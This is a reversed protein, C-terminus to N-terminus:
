EACARSWSMKADSGSIAARAPSAGGLRAGLQRAAGAGRAVADLPDKADVARAYAENVWTSSRTPDARGSRIPILSRAPWSANRAAGDARGPGRAAAGAGAPRRVRRPRAARRPQRHRPGRGRPPPRGPQGSGSPLGAGRERLLAVNAELSQAQDAPLWAGFGLVRRPLPADLVLSVDGEIEPESHAGGWVVVFQTEAALFARAREMQQRLHDIEGTLEAERRAWRQRGTLHLLATITSFVVLGAGLSLGVLGGADEFGFASAAQARAAAGPVVLASAASLWRAFRLRARPRRGTQSGRQPM